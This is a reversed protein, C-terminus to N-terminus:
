LCDIQKANCSIIDDKDVNFYSFAENEEMGSLQAYHVVLSKLDTMSFQSIPVNPHFEKVYELFSPNNILKSYLNRREAEYDNLHNNCPVINNNEDLCSICMEMKARCFVVEPNTETKPLEPQEVAPPVEKYEVKDSLPKQPAEISVVDSPHSLEYDDESITKKSKTGKNSIMVFVTIVLFLLAINRVTKNM